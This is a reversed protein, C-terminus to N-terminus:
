GNIVIKMANHGSHAHEFAKQSEALAYRHTILKKVQVKGSSILDLSQKTDNDSAAYSTVLTLEKSYIVSM